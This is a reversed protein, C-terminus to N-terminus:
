RAEGTAAIGFTRTVAPALRAVFESLPGVTRGTYLDMAMSAWGQVEFVSSDMLAFALAYRLEADSATSEMAEFTLFNSPAFTLLGLIEGFSLDLSLRVSVRPGDDPTADGFLEASTRSLDVNPATSATVAPRQALTAPM